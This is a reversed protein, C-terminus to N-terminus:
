EGEPNQWFEESPIYGPESFSDQDGSDNILCVSYLISHLNIIVVM